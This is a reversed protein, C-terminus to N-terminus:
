YKNVNWSNPIKKMQNRLIHFCNLRSCQGARFSHDFMYKMIIKILTCIQKFSYTKQAKRTAWSTFFRGAICSVWTQNRPRSSRSSFPYTGVGTNKPKGQHSLQYLIQRCHLLGPNSGQTPFNGQLLAHCAVATNKGPSDEHVSSDPPSWDMSDCLTLCLQTALCLVYTMCQSYITILM